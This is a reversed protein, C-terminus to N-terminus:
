GGLVKVTVGLQEELMLALYGIGDDDYTLYYDWAIELADFDENNELVPWKQSTRIRRLNKPWTKIDASKALYKTTYWIAMFDDGLPISDQQQGLGCSPANDKLWRKTVDHSMLAHIHVRGNKHLEPLLVYRVGKYRRRIRTSLKAWAKPWVHLCQDRNKLKRNSTMTIFRWGHCNVMRYFQIGEAIRASWRQRNKIACQPCNWMKCAPQYLYICGHEDSWGKLVPRNKRSCKSSKEM